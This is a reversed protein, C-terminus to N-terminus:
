EEEVARIALERDSVRKPAGKPQSRLKKWPALRDRVQARSSAAASAGPEQESESGSTDRPEQEEGAAASQQEEGAATSETAGAATSETAGASAPIGFGGGLAKM